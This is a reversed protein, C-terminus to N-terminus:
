GPTWPAALGIDSREAADEGSDAVAIGEGQEASRCVM